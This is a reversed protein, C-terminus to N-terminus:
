KKESTPPPPAGPATVTVWLDQAFDSTSDGRKLENRLSYAAEV